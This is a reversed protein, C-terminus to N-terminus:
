DSFYRYHGIIEWSFLVDESRAGAGINHVIQYNGTEDSVKNSVIGIHLVGNGLNWAVIDGPLYDQKLATIPLAKGKRTFYTMLNPVRRHDISPDPKTLGWKRPYAAFNARMDEHIEKQLDTGVKRFARVIVDSCVGTERAVDGGPYDIRVYSPDYYRTYTTQEVAAQIVQAVVTPPAPAAQQPTSAQHACAILSLAFLFPLHCLVRDM